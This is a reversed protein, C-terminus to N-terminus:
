RDAAPLITVKVALPRDSRQLLEKEQKSPGTESDIVAQAALDRKFQEFHEPAVTFWRTEIIMGSSFPAARRAVGASAPADASANKRVGEANDAAASEPAPHRRVVFEVDASPENISFVPETMPMPASRFPFQRSGGLSLGGFGFPDGILRSNDRGTGVEQVSIPARRFTELRGGADGETETKARQSSAAALESRQAPQRHTPVPPQAAVPETVQDKREEQPARRAEEAATPLSAVQTTLAIPKPAQPSDMKEYLYASFVAILVVAAAQLPFRNQTILLFRQWLSPRLDIERAHAMVRQAFGLPPDVIPLAAVQRVCDALSDVEARCPPCAVLHNELHKTSIIDLSRDLYELLQSQVEECNM